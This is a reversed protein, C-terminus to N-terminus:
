LAGETAKAQASLDDVASWFGRRLERRSQERDTIGFRSAYKLLDGDILRPLGPKPASHLLGERTAEDARTWWREGYRAGIQDPSLLTEEDDFNDLSRQEPNTLQKLSPPGLRVKEAPTRSPPILVDKVAELEDMSEGAPAVLGNDVIVHPLQNATLAPSVAGVVVDVGDASTAAVGKLRVHSSLEAVDIALRRDALAVLEESQRVSADDLSVGWLHVRLGRDVAERVGPVLDGDGAILVVEDVSGRSAAVVLDRVITTDVAKQQPGRITEVVWGLQVHVGPISALTRHEQRPRSGRAADYWTQRLVTAGTEEEALEGIVDALAAWNIEVTERSKQGVQILLAKILFGADVLV